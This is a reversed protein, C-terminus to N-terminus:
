SLFFFKYDINSPPKEKLKKVILYLLIFSFFSSSFRLSFSLFIFSPFPSFSYNFMKSTQEEEEEKLELTFFLTTHSPHYV